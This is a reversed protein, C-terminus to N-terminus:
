FINYLFEEDFQLFSNDNCVDSHSSQLYKGDHFATNVVYIAAITWMELSDWDSCTSSLFQLSWAM